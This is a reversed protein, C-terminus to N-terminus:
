HHSDAPLRCVESFRAAVSCLIIGHADTFVQFFEYLVGSLNQSLKALREASYFDGSKFPLLTQLRADRIQGGIPAIKPDRPQLVVMGSPM